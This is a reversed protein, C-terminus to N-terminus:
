GFFGMKVQILKELERVVRRRSVFLIVHDGDALVIDKHGMFVEDGRVVAAVHCGSPWRISEIRRGVLKSTDTNGHVVVEVAETSGGRLPHVAVVDGRRIHALISGITVLHPSVVIDITNGQLLDVYSSRNVIAIVRKAGLSKALMGSMINTEDDNTLACFVDIEDIYEGSLLSEDTASSQLVLTNDLQEALWEARKEDAEIIKIDFQSELQKALRYGINGGGAIMVRRTPQQLPRLERLVAPVHETAAAVFVEDGQLIVTQATPVILKNNRYIACIQCDVDAPLHEHIAHIPKDLLLGGKQARLVLMRVKDDAFKLVQLASPHNLLGILRETVLQEPCISETVEFVELASPSDEEAQEGRYELYESARVRAIRNPINFLTAALKCAVLNSEDNRTLALLLDTDYAGGEAMVAPSSGNGALTQVDLKSSISRLAEPNNDIVTVDHHPLEALNQAVTAGVQGSGLILIKM